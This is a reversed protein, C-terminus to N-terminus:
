LPNKYCECKDCCPTGLICRTGECRNRCETGCKPNGCQCPNEGSCSMFFLVTLFFLFRM